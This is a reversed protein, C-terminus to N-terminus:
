QPNGGGAYSRLTLLRSKAIDVNALSASVAGPTGQPGACAAHLKEANLFALWHREAARLLERTGPDLTSMLKRCTKNLEADWAADAKSACESQSATNEGSPTNLCADLNKDIPDKLEQCNEALATFVVSCLAARIPSAM